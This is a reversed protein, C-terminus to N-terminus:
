VLKPLHSAKKSKGRECTSCFHDKEYKFKSLGDVLDLKSINNITGFNLHSLRRQWLWSKTSTAKSMLCVPSSAAMDFISIIYLNSEHGGTLLDDGELNRVYCTNSRFAVELDGDCFRWVSFLNHGLCSVCLIHKVKFTSAVDVDIVNKKNSIVNAFTNDTQKNKRVYVAVKKASNKSNALVSNKEHSDRNMLRRVSSVANIRLMSVPIFATEKSNKAFPIFSSPFYKQKASLEKQPVFDKYLTNIQQYDVTWCNQKNAVAIPDNM